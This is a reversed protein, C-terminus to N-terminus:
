RNSELSRQLAQEALRKTRYVRVREGNRSPLAVRWRGSRTRQPQMMQECVEAAIAAIISSGSGAINLQRRARRSRARLEDGLEAFSEAARRIATVIGPVSKNLAEAFAHVSEHWADHESPAPLGGPQRKDFVHPDYYGGSPTGDASNPNPVPEQKHM